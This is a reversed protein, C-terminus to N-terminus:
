IKFGLNNRVDESSVASAIIPAKDAVRQQWTEEGWLEFRSVNGILIAAKKLAVLERLTQPILIRGNADMEVDHTHFQILRHMERIEPTVEAQEMSRECEEWVPLPYVGLCGDFPNYSVTLEGDCGESLSERFRSPIAIRGKSDLNLNHSGRFRYM